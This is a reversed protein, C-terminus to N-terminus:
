TELYPNAIKLSALLKIELAEMIVADADNEHDFGLAHLVGHIILHAAHARLTKGQSKAEALLVPWCLVIDASMTQKSGKGEIGYAFTLVNTAYDKEVGQGRHMHNLARGEAAGVWRLTLQAAKLKTHTSLAKVVWGRVTSRPLVQALKDSAVPTLASQQSLSLNMCNGHAILLM